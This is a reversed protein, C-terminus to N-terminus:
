ATRGGRWRLVARAQQVTNVVYAPDDLHEWTFRLVRYGALVLLNQRERDRIFQEASQHSARGDFELVIREAEFLVDPHFLQGELRITANAVWGSIRAGTLISHLRVEALSWPNQECDRMSRRRQAQGPSRAFTALAAQAEGQDALELRLFESLLRGQDAGALQAAVYSPSALRLGHTRIVFEVPVVHHSVQADGRSRLCPHAVDIPATVQEQLWVQAATGSHIVGLPDTWRLVATLATLTSDDGARVVVGPYRRELEGAQCLRSVTTRQRPHDRVALAPSAALLEAILHNM